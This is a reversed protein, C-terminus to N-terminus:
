LFPGLFFCFLQVNMCCVFSIRAIAPLFNNTKECWNQRVPLRLCRSKASNVVLFASERVVETGLYRLVM